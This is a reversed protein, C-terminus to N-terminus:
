TDHGNSNSPNGYRFHINFLVRQLRGHVVVGLEDVPRDADDLSRGQGRRESNPGLLFGAVALFGLAELLVAVAESVTLSAGFIAIADPAVVGRLM